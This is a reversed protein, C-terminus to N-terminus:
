PAPKKRRAPAKADPVDVLSALLARPTIWAEDALAYFREAVEAPVWVALLRLGRAERAAYSRSPPATPPLAEAAWRAAVEEDRRAM